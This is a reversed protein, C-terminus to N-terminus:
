TSRGVVAGVNDILRTSDVIGAILLRVETGPAVHEARRLTAPEVIAAYALTVAPEAAVVDHMARETRGISGTAEVETRGADLARSLALAARRSTASLRANRSSLALGDADRVTPCAVVTAALGLDAVLQRVICLQQYDKEGFYARCAGTAVLLKAVVGAVGDFHGPRDRGEFDESLSPLSVRTVPASPWSPWVEAVPPALVLQVGCSAALALDADLDVAYRALDAHSDFQLPNVFITAVAVDCEAESRTFLSAHGAHLAGMTLTVGVSSGGARLADTRERWEALTTVVEPV